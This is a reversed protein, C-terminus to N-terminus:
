IHILSLVKIVGSKEAVFVRGDNAFRVVMPNTLGSLAVTEQFGSPVTGATAASPAPPPATSPALLAFAAIAIFALMSRVVVGTPRTLRM